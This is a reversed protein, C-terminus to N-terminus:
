AVEGVTSRYGDDKPRADRESHGVVFRMTLSVFIPELVREEQKAKLLASRVGEIVATQFSEPFDEGFVRVYLDPLSNHEKTTQAEPLGKLADERNIKCPCKRVSCGSEYHRDSNCGCSFCTGWSM